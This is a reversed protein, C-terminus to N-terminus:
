KEVEKNPKLIDAIRRMEHLTHDGQTIRTFIHRLEEAEEATLGYIDVKYERVWRANYGRKIEYTESQIGIRGKM